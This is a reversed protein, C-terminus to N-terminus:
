KLLKRESEFMLKFNKFKSFSEIVKFIEKKFLPYIM